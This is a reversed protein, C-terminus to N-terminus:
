GHRENVPEYLPLSSDIVEENRLLDQLAQLVEPIPGLEALRQRLDAAYTSPADSAERILQRVNEPVGAAPPSASSSPVAAVNSFGPEPPHRKRNLFPLLQRRPLPAPEQDVVPLSALAIPTQDRWVMATQKEGIPVIRTEGQSHDAVYSQRPPSSPDEGCRGKTRLRPGPTM